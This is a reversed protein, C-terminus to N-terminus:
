SQKKLEIIGNLSDCGHIIDADDKNLRGLLEDGKETLFRPTDEGQETLGESCTWFYFFREAKENGFLAKGKKVWQEHWEEPTKDSSQPRIGESIHILGDRIYKQIM